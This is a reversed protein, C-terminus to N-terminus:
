QASETAPANPDTATLSTEFQIKGFLSMDPEWGDDTQWGALVDRYHANQREELISKRKNETAEADTDSDVRLFYWAGDKEIMDSSEGQKMGKLATMVADETEAGAEEGEEVYTAYTQKVASLGNAEAVSELTAGEAALQTQIQVARAKASEADEDESATVVLQTYGRMNAEEDSVAADAQAKVADTVRARITFLGLLEEVLEQSAGLEKIAEPTNDTMFKAAAASIAANDEETLSVGFDGMHAKLTYMEHIEEFASEKVSDQMNTGSNYPDAMWVDETGLYMRYIDEYSAQQVRCYFNVLGMPVETGSVTGVVANQDIQGCGALLSVGLMGALLIAAVRKARM